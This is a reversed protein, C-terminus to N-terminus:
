FDSYNTLDIKTGNLAHTVETILGITTPTFCYTLAGGCCGHNPETRNQKKATIADQEAVWVSLKEYQEITLKFNM